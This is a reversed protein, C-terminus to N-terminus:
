NYTATINFTGSYNGSNLAGNGVASGLAPINGLAGATMVGLSGGVFIFDIGATYMGAGSLGNINYTGDVPIAVNGFTFPIVETRYVAPQFILEGNNAGMSNTLTVQADYHILVSAGAAGTVTFKGLTAGAGVNLKTSSSASMYPMTGISVNGFAIDVNKTITLNSVLSATVAASNSAPQAFVSTTIAALVLSACLFKISNKM